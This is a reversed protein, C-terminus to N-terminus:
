DRSIVPMRHQRALAAIWTNNAPIPHGARKLEGRIRVYEIATLQDISLVFASRLWSQWGLRTGTRYRSQAIGHRGDALALLANTDLIV